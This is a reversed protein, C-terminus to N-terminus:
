FNKNRKKMNAPMITVNAYILETGDKAQYRRISGDTDCNISIAISTKEGNVWGTFEAYEEGNYKRIKMALTCRNRMTDSRM